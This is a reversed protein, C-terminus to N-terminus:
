IEETSGPSSYESFMLFTIEPLICLKSIYDGSITSVIGYLIEYCHFINIKMLATM